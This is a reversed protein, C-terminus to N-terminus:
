ILSISVRSAVSLSLTPVFRNKVCLSRKVRSHPVRSGVPRLRGVSRYYAMMERALEPVAATAAESVQTFLLFILPVQHTERLM